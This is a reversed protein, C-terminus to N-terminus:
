NREEPIVLAKAFGGLKRNQDYICLPLDAKPMWVRGIEVAVSVPVAPFVHLLVNQGHRVKIRDLLLRFQQRFIRLQEKSKLFDNNPTPIAMRWISLHQQPLVATIRANDITASLSLNLAVTSHISGPEEILFEFGDPADQWNWDPPERHLQYVEAARIDSLLRGLEILLPQPALAFVSLHHVEGAVVRPHLFAKLNNQLNQREIAWYQAWDDEFASNRLGLEIGRSEAPYWRPTMAQMAKQWSLPAAQQGINAGYLLVHSKKDPQLSTLLEIREEHERKM